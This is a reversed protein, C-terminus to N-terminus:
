CVQARELYGLLTNLVENDDKSPAQLYVPNPLHLTIHQQHQTIKPIGLQNALIKIRIIALFQASMSDLTGFRDEIEHAIELVQASSQCHSLRRYLELRLADSTILEANLFGSVALKLEVSSRAQMTGSKEQLADELMRAYLAYGISKIHGSQHSGLLNGGGRIELDHLAIHAGSGLSSNKELALLRKTASPSLNQKDEVLFYCFGEHAGRGVRGRLQHLDALGFSDAHDIIITNANPLHIGSEVISTCLLLEFGGQAFELILSEAQTAPTKSHLIEVRLHPLLDQLSKQVSPMSQIHNYIYFVQGKRRLERLIIEKLLVPTKEKVFTRSPPKSEPPTALYSIDKIQALAMSLTRPIPTASMSLLHVNQSLAKIAEKQKVGFKHEEDVVVLGLDKFKAELLAHTGVVVDIRGEQLDKLTRAKDKSFRDLKAITIDFPSLRAQLSAYHQNSLLTTPVFLASQRKALALAYIAVLAVETKGFGVDGNLLRDMVQGSALDGLVEEIAREQDLTLKFPRANHFAKLQTPDPTIQVGELLMRAAHASIIDEALGLLEARVKAKLKSFSGKGLKDLMPTNPAIYRELLHLNEVPVFLRDHNQYELAIFDRVSGLISQQVLGQFIGVGYDEHVVFDGSNLESLAFNLPKAKPPKPYSHLSIFIETPTSFHLVCDSLIFEVPSELSPLTEHARHLLTICHEPHLACFDALNKLPLKLDACGSPHELQPLALIKELQAISELSAYEQAEQYAEISLLASYEEWLYVGFDQLVWWGLSAVDPVLSHTQLNELRTLLTTHQESTLSFLAPPIELCELLEPDSLQTALDFTKIDECEEGFFSLRHPKSSGPTFIDIIDGRVSVEGPLEVMDVFEYGYARLRTQLESLPCAELAQISFSQCLFSKPLPHLIASLPTILLCDKKSEKAQYFLRLQSLLTSVEASFARMDDLYHARLEPFVFLAKQPAFFRVVQSAQRAQAGDQVILVESKFGKLLAQYLSAQIM